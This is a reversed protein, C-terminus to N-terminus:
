AIDDENISHADNNTPDVDSENEDHDSDNESGYGDFEGPQNLNNAEVILNNMDDRRYAHVEDGNEEYM